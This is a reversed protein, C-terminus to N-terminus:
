LGFAHRHEAGLAGDLAFVGLPQDVIERLAALHRQHSRGFEGREGFGGEAAAVHAVLIDSGFKGGAKDSTVSGAGIGDHQGAGM